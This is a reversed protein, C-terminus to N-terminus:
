GAELEPEPEAERADRMAQAQEAEAREMERLTQVMDAATQSAGAHWDRQADTATADDYTALAGEWKGAIHDASHGAEAQRVILDHATQAGKVWEPAPRTEAEPPRGQATDTSMEPTGEQPQAAPAAQARETTRLQELAADVHATFAAMEAAAAPTRPGNERAPGTIFEYAAAIRDATWGEREALFRAASRAGREAPDVAQRPASGRVPRAPAPHDAVRHRAPQPQPSCDPCLRPMDHRDKIERERTKGGPWTRVLHFSGGAQKVVEMLRAGRGARHAELRAELDSTSGLYHKAHRYAPDLHVLYTWQGVSANAPDLDPRYVPAEATM